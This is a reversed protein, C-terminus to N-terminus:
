VKLVDVHEKEEDKRKRFFIWFILGLVLLLHLLSFWWSEFLGGLADLITATLTRESTVQATLYASISQPQEEPDIYNLVSSFIVSDGVNAGGSLEGELSISSQAGARVTGLNYTIGNADRDFFPFNTSQYATETPLIVKLYANELDYTCNNTYSVSFIFPEGEDLGTADLTPTLLLCSGAGTSSTQVVIPTPLPTPPTPGGTTVPRTTGVLIAGKVIGYENQAVARYFYSTNPTLGTLAYAFQAAQTGSGIDRSSTQSGLTATLGYEFWAKTDSTGNPNVSGALIM